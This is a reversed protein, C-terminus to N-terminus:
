LIPWWYRFYWNCWWYRGRYITTNINYRVGWIRISYQLMYSLILWYKFKPVM